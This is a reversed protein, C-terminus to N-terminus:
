PPVIYLVCHLGGKSTSTNTPIKSKHFLQISLKIHAANNLSTMIQIIKLPRNMQKEFIDRKSYVQRVKMLDSLSEEFTRQM